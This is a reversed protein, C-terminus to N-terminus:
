ALTSSQTAMGKELPDECGLSQVWTELMAPMNKVTQAVLSALLYLHAGLWIPHPHPPPLITNRPNQFVSITRQRPDSCLWPRTNVKWEQKGGPCYSAKKGEGGKCRLPTMNSPHSTRNLAVKLSSALTPTPHTPSPPLLSICNLLLIREPHDM